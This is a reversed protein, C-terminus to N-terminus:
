LRGRRLILYGLGVVILMGLAGGAIGTAWNTQATNQLNAVQQELQAVQEKSGPLAEGNGDQMTSVVHLNGHCEACVGPDINMTHGSKIVFVGAEDLQRRMHCSKCDIDKGMHIDDIQAEKHCNGCTDNITGQKLGNNHPTHCDVCDIGARNHASVLWEDYTPAHAGSHCSGCARSDSRIVTPAPPHKAGNETYHCTSCVVGEFVYQNTEPNYGSAHCGMCYTPSGLRAFQVRFTEGLSANGHPSSLWQQHENQHCEACESPNVVPQNAPSGPVVDQAAPQLGLKQEVATLLAATYRHNHIGGSGDGEVFDLATRVWDPSDSKLSERAKKLRDATETQSDTVFKLMAESTTDTHCSTCSDTLGEINLGPQILKDTHAAQSFGDVSVAPMHCNACRPGNPDTFHVSSVGPVEKVIEKGEFMEQVPHHIDKTVDTDRHCSTCLTYSDATLDFPLAGEAQKTHPNHCSVCTVGYKAEAVTPMTPADGKREGAKVAEILKQTFTFDASHCSLCATEAPYTSGKLSDLSKSHASQLWENYQMNASKGHGSAWWHDTNDPAVLTFVDTLTGGPRFRVTYPQKTEPDTGVSHCQGCTQADPTLSISARIAKLQDANPDRGADTALDKHISGPGHCAECQVGDDGWRGRTPNLDTTHCGACNAVFDYTPDTPWAQGAKYPQWKKEAVNWEAPFIAYKNREIQYVYREVYRGSGIIFAVDSAKFPRAATENPFTVTRETEGAAFDAQIVSPDAGVKRLALAHRSSTHNQTLDRHCSACDEAGEYDAVPGGDQALAPRSGVALALGCLVLGLGLLILRLPTTKRM